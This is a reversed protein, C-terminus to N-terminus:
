KYFFFQKMCLYFFFYNKLVLNRLNLNLKDGTYLHLYFEVDVCYYMVNPLLFVNPRLM